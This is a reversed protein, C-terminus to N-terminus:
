VFLGKETFYDGIAPASSGLEEEIHQIPIAM